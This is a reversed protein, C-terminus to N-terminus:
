GRLVLEFRKSPALNPHDPTVRAAYGCMGTHTLPISGMFTVRGDADVEDKAPTLLTIHRQKFNDRLDMPGHLIEVRLEEPRHGATDITVKAQIQQGRIARNQDEVEMSIISIKNWDEQISKGWSVMRKLAAYGDAQLKFSNRASPVYVREVYDSVMRHSNFVACLTRISRKMMAIWDRPLEDITREYFLPKVSDQLLNYLARSEIADQYTPNDYEERWGIAWGNDGTYGEDWWGDLISLNLAGNAAAKMGSAGCAESPRRPTNLWVDAGQAMLRAVNIDYDEIFVIRTRFPEEKILSIIRKLLDKAKLDDPHAKGAMIIQVPRDTQGLIRALTEPERFLLDVREYQGFRRAFCVTLAEPDLVREAQEAIRAPEGRDKLQKLLRQRAFQVLRSRCRDHARWLEIDPIKEARQWIKDNDPDENWGLGLYRDFLKALDRSIYSPIHVGNTLGLIPVDELDANPWVDRWTNRAVKAHLLSVGNARSSLRLGLASASFKEQEDAPRRRGLRALVETDMRLRQTLGAFYKDLIGRDFLDAGVPQGTHLTVVSQATAMGRAEDPSLGENEIFHRMRELLAFSAHGENLHYITPKIGLADLVRCGGVGLLIEQRILTEPDSDYLKSTVARLHPPNDAIDADLLYLPVRGVSVKLIRAWLTENAMEVAIKLPNGSEDTERELPLTDLELRPYLEEQWGDPRLRQHFYGNHYMLGVAVLPLNLDSASKLHDGAHVGLGGSYMPLCETLGFELSFYAITFDVPEDLNYEYFRKRQMYAKFRQRVKLAFSRYGADERIEQLRQKSLSILVKQPNHCSEEWLKEDLHEFLEIAEGNWSFWLNSAMERLNELGGRMPPVVVYTRVTM